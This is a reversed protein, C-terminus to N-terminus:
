ADSYHIVYIFNKVSVQVNRSIYSSGCQMVKFGFDITERYIITLQQIGPPFFVIKLVRANRKQSRLLTCNNEM